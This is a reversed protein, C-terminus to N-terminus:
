LHHSHIKAARHRIARRVPPISSHLPTKQFDVDHESFLPLSPWSPAAAHVHPREAIMNLTTRMYACIAPKCLYTDHLTKAAAAIAACEADHERCWRIQTELDSLDAAVPVHDVYPQLLPFFFLNCAETRSAVKLIVSGMSCLAGYRNAACHGDIYVVYKFRAQQNLPIPAVRGFPFSRPNLLAIPKGFQKKDRMNWSTIGADLLDRKAPDLSWCHSLLAIHLRQNDDVTVGAGTASGRFVATEVKESWPIADVKQRWNESTFTDRCDPLFVVNCAREWDEVCPLPLDAFAPATYFSFIPALTAFRQAEVPRKREDFLFDYVETYDARLHPFDRKNIFFEVDHVRGSKCTEDLMHKLHCLMADGWVNPSPSNCLINGNAWWQTVDPMVFERCMKRKITLYASVDTSQQLRPAWNNVYHMNVFPVFMEVRGNAIMVYIGCRMHFFLYRLTNEVSDDSCVAHFPLHLSNIVPQLLSPTCESEPLPPHSRLPRSALLSARPVLLHRKVQSWNVLTPYVHTLSPFEPNTHLSSQVRADSLYRSAESRTPFTPWNWLRLM